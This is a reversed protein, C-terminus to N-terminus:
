LNDSSLQLGTDKDLISGFYPEMKTFCSQVKYKAHSTMLYALSHNSLFGMKEIQPSNM